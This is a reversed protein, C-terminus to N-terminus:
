DTQMGLSASTDPIRSTQWRLMYLHSARAMCNNARLGEFPVPRLDADACSCIGRPSDARTRASILRRVFFNRGTKFRIRLIPSLVLLSYTRFHLLFNKSQTLSHALFTILPFTGSVSRWFVFKRRLLFSKLDNDILFVDSRFFRFIRCFPPNRAASSGGTSDMRPLRGLRQYQHVFKIPFIFSQL